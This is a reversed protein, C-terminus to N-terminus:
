AKVSPHLLSHVAKLLVEATFPKLLFAHALETSAEFGSDSTNSEALGSIVLLRLDPCHRTLIRALSGGGLNPMDRDTILLAVETTQANFLGIAEVGDGASVVSYNHKRLIEGVMERIPQDDDVVLILENKGALAAAAPEGGNDSMKEMTAPLFVCFSTGNDPRTDLTVFGGHDAVIGRVTSLGLGTGKGPSKTTFFPEWIHPLVDAPIGSGTDAIEIFLWAGPRSGLLARAQEEDLQRNAASISLTGGQPMADRANVCLNLLVQHIQASNGLTLWLGSPIHHELRISKPLTEQLINIIERLIPMVETLQFEGTNAHVFGLIQKVLGAGRAASKELIELIKLDGSTSLSKRLMPAAFVIPALVNNLDHAIGAALMGLSELRQTQLFRKELEKKETVDIFYNLRARPRGIEDRVLTIHGEVIIKRGDSTKLRLEGNWFGDREVAARVGEVVGVYDAGLLEEPRHGIVEAQTWGFIKEAGRNWLSIKHDRNVIMVGEHSNVLIDNQERLRLDGVKRETIDRSIGILGTINGQADRRAVKTSSVWTIHGDPSIQKEEAGIMPEGTEMVGQEDAYAQRAQKEDHVDFDTKGVAETPDHFEYHRAAASNIRVFRSQRDKFYIHDPILNVLDAFMAQELLLAKEASRRATIDRINCQIVNEHNAQYVNSVFEVDIRGGNATELPKNEYRIYKNRQLEAFSAQNAFIDKFFGLDWIKKGLFQERSFGLKEILFPNVDVVMGTDADLILIGDKASEFLRRYRLESAVLAAMQLKLAPWNPDYQDSQRM